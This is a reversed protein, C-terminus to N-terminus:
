IIRDVSEDVIVRAQGLDYVAYTRGEITETGDRVAGTLTVRDDSGGHITMTQTDPSLALIQAETLTLISDEAFTLDISQIQMGAALPASLDIVSTSLEDFALFTGNTNGAQDTASVVLHSGDPLPTEAFGGGPLENGFDHLTEGRARLVTEESNVTALTGDARVETLTIVEPVTDISISAIGQHNRTYGEIFPSAPADTDVALAQTLMGTNGAADRAHVVMETPYTGSRVAGAPIEARWNGAADVTATYFQGDYQVRVTSLTGDAAAAEVRGTVAFGARAEAMNIVGDGAVPGVIELRNLRTDVRVAHTLTETNLASDTAVATLQTVYEDGRISSPEFRTSWRGDSLVHAQQTVDGLTVMVRSGPEVQGTVMLGAAADAANIIGDAAVGTSTYAFDRVETDLTVGRSASSSNGALDTATARLTLQDQGTPIDATNFRVSWNGFGDVNALKEQGNGLQVMVRAGPDTTGNVTFGAARDAANILGDGAIAGTIAVDVVTDVRVARSATSVNGAADRATVNFSADYEDRGARDFDAGAFRMSWTGDTSTVQRTITGFQVEVVSGPQTTGRLMVGGDAAARNIVDGQGLPAPDITLHHVTDVRFTGSARGINGAADSTTATLSVDYEGSRVEGPLYTVRWTGDAGVEVTRSITSLGDNRVLTLSNGPTSTGTVVYGSRAEDFNVIGNGGVLGSQIVIPDPITDVVVRDTVRTANNFGDTATVSLARSYDGEPVDAPGFNVSWRGDAGAEVSRSATGLTVDIRAGPESTGSIDVGDRQDDGNVVHGASETGATIALVPPTTDISVSPGNLNVQTGGGPQTVEVQVPYTGDRPMTNGEFIVQWNGDGGPSTVQTVDGITVEVTAGPEGTGSIIIQQTDGGGIRIPDKENVTPLRPGTGGAEGGGEGGRTGGEGGGGVATATGGGGGAAASPAASPAASAGGGAAGALVSGAALASLGGAAGLAGGGLFLGPALMSVTDDETVPQTIEAGDMFILDEHPSWKGWAETPGYQAFFAGDGSDFLSVESLYGDASIFLRAAPGNADFYGKLTVIRGDALTIQLDDGARAYGALQFQKINLSIEEGASVNIVSVAVGDEVMGRRSAGSVSRVVFDMAKM